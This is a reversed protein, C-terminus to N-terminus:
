GGFRAGEPLFPDILSPGDFGALQGDAFVVLTFALSVTVYCLFNVVFGFKLARSAWVTLVFLPVVFVLPVVWWDLELFLSVRAEDNPIFIASMGMALARQMFATFILEYGFRVKQFIALWAGVLGLWLTFIPGAISVLAYDFDSRWVGEVLGAKTLQFYMEYGLATGAIWHVIEHLIMTAIVVVFMTLYFSLGPKLRTGSNSLM